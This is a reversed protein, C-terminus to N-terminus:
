GFLSSVFLNNTDLYKITFDGNDSNPLNFECTNVDPYGVYLPQEAHGSCKSKLNDLINIRTLIEDFLDVFNKSNLEKDLEDKNKIVNKLITMKEHREKDAFITNEIDEKNNTLFDDIESLLTAHRSTYTNYINELVDLRESLEVLPNTIQENFGTTQLDILSNLDEKIKFLKTYYEDIKDELDDLQFSEIQKEFKMNEFKNKTNNINNEMLIKNNKTDEELQTISVYFYVYIFGILVSIILSFISIFENKKLLERM